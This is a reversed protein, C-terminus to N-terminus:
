GIASKKSDPSFDKKYKKLVLSRLLAANVANALILSGLSAL